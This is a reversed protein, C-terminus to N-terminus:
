GEVTFYAWNAYDASLLIEATWINVAAVKCHTTQCKRPKKQSISRETLKHLNPM